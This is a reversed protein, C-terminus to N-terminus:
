SVRYAARATPRGSVTATVNGTAKKAAVQFTVKFGKGGSRKVTVTARNREAVRVTTLNGDGRVKVQALTEGNIRVTVTEGKAVNGITITQKASRRITTSSLKLSVPATVTSTTTSVKQARYGSQEVTATAKLRAGADAAKVTYSTGRGVIKTGRTWVISVKVKPTSTFSATLRAGVQTKGTIRLKAGTVSGLAPKPAVPVAGIEITGSTYTIHEPATITYGVTITKGRLADTVELSNGTDIKTGNAYWTINVDADVNDDLADHDVTLTLTKGVRPDGTVKHTVGTIARLEPVAGITITDSTHTVYGPATVTYAVTITKGRMADTVELTDGTTVKDGNAYWTIATTTAVDDDLADHDVTLSLTNGVRPEGTIMPSVGPIEPTRVVGIKVWVEIRSYYRNDFIPAEVIVWVERGEAEPGLVIEEPTAGRPVAPGGVRDFHARLLGGQTWDVPGAIDTIPLRYTRSGPVIGDPEPEALLHVKGGM